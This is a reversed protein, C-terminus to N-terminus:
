ANGEQIYFAYISLLILFISVGLVILSGISLGTQEFLTQVPINEETTEVAEIVDEPIEPLILEESDREVTVGVEDEAAQLLTDVYAYNHIGGSGDGEVVAIVENVWQPSLETMASQINSIRATVNDQIGEILFQMARQDSVDTHCVTCSDQVVDTTIADGPMVPAFVHSSRMGGHEVPVQPLHCTVCRPGEAASFHAGAVGAVQILIPQGEYVEQVPHHIDIVSSQSNHCDVCLAYRDDVLHKPNEAIDLHPDHCSACTVSLGVEPLLPNEDPSEVILVLVTALSQPLISNDELEEQAQMRAILDPLIQPLFEADLDIAEPDLELAEIAALQFEEWEMSGLGRISIDAADFLEDMRDRDDENEIRRVLSEARRYTAEHCSMCAIQFNENSQLSSFSTAHSSQLWENFQMNASSGHGTVWWHAEDDPPALVFVAEDLLTGGPLYDTPFPHNDDLEQGRSHCQGCTQADTGLEISNEIDERDRGSLIDDLDMDEAVEVHVSGPGHCAECQVGDDEWRGRRANLGTTHCYACNQAWDYAEDPWAEALEFPEWAQAQVNWQVPLVMYENRDVEFLYRQVYRGSGVAFAIDDQTIARTEDEDPFQITRLDEGAEFDALVFEEDRGADLLTLGHPSEAHVRAIDRHCSGCDRAGVYEREADDQAFTSGPTVALIMGVFILLCGGFLTFFWNNSRQM